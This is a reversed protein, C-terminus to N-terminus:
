ASRKMMLAGCLENLPGEGWDSLAVNAILCVIRVNGSVYGKTPDIRDISPSRPSRASGDSLSLGSFQCKGNAEKVISLFEDISISFARGLEHARTEAGFYLRKAWLPQNIWPRKDIKRRKGKKRIGVKKARDGPFVGSECMSWLEIAKSFEKGLPVDKRGAVRGDWYYYTVSESGSKRIHKRFRPPTNEPTYEM